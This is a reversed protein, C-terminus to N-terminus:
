DGAPREGGTESRLRRLARLESEIMKEINSVMAGRHNERAQERMRELASLRAIAEAENTVLYRESM